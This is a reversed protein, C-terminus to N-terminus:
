SVQTLAFKSPIAEWYTSSIQVLFKVTSTYVFCEIQGQTISDTYSANYISINRDTATIM